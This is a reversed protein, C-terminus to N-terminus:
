EHCYPIPNYTDYVRDPAGEIEEHVPFFVNIYEIKRLIHEAVIDAIESPAIPFAEADNNVGRVISGKLYDPLVLMVQLLNKAADIVSEIQAKQEMSFENVGLRHEMGWNWVIKEFNEPQEFAIKRCQAINCGKMPCGECKRHGCYMGHMRGFTDMLEQYNSFM